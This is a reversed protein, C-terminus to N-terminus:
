GGALTKASKWRKPAIHCNPAAIILQTPQKSIFESSKVKNASFLRRLIYTLEMRKVKM